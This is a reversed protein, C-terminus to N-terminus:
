GLRPGYLAWGQVVVASPVSSLAVVLWVIFLLGLLLFFSLVVLKVEVVRLFCNVQHNLLVLACTTEALLRKVAWSDATSFAM